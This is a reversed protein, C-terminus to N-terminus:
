REEEDGTRLDSFRRLRRDVFGDLSAPDDPLLSRARLLQASESGASFRLNEILEDSFSEPWTYVVFDDTVAHLPHKRGVNAAVRNLVYRQADWPDDGLDALERAALARFEVDDNLYPENPAELAFEYPNWVQRFAHSPDLSAVAEARDRELGIAVVGACLEEEAAILAVAYVLDDVAEAALREQVNATARHIVTEFAV